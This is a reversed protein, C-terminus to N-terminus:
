SAAATLQVALCERVQVLAHRAELINQQFAEPTPVGPLTLAVRGHSILELDAARYFAQGPRVVLRVDDLEDLM